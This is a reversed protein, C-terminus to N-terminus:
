ESESLLMDIKNSYNRKLSDTAALEEARSLWRRAADENGKQLYSLGLLFYFQDEYRRKRIAYKLHSIAADYDQALFAERARQFRYYPNQDRHRVVRKRFVDARESDRRLEYVNVLNSMAVYDGANVKVAQLYAAEAYASHGQRLYLTGLNTWAPAFRRDNEVIAKRFYLLALATDGTQMREVGMNNYYHALARTDSIADRDYSTRFDEMNFDVVQEGSLGLDVLVNVHRNLVFADNRYTWDPPIDVEQFNVELGVERAMAVFMNSFSLCNGQRLRFTEAATRTIEDYELGFTGKNLIAYALQHLKVYDSARRYVHTDLFSLMEPSLALVEEEDVLVPSNQAGGLPAGALLEDATIETSDLREQAGAGVPVLSILCVLSARIWM